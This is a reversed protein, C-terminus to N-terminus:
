KYRGWLLLGVVVYYFALAALIWWDDASYGAKVCRKSLLRLVVTVLALVGFVVGFVTTLRNESAVTSSSM